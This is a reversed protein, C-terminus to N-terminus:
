TYYFTATYHEQVVKEMKRRVVFVPKNENPQGIVIYPDQEWRDALKHKGEFAVIKVLVRDGIKM